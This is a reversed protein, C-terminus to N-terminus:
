WCSSSYRCHHSFLAKFFPRLSPAYKQTKMHLKARKRLLSILWEGVILIIAALLIKPGYFLIWDLAKDYIKQTNMSNIFYLYFFLVM